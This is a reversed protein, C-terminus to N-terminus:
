PAVTMGRTVKTKCSNRCAIILYKGTPATPKIPLAYRFKGRGNTRVIAFANAGNAGPASLKLTVKVNHAWHSGSFTVNAGRHVPNPSVTLTPGTAAIGVAALAVVAAAALISVAIRAKRM